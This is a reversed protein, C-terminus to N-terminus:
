GMDDLIDRLKGSYSPDTAWVGNGLQSIRTVWYGRTKQVARADYYRDHPKGITERGTYAAMHNVHMRVGAYATAPREFDRPSDGVDGGKKIGAMNWPKSDGGYRGYGTELMAQAVLFDPAIGVKPGLKYYHPISQLIYKTSGKSRAHRMADAQSRLPRGLISDPNRTPATRAAKKVVKVGDAIVRGKGRGARSVIVNSRNGAAMRFTGLRVWRGGKTRQNVRVWKTGSTTVVGFPTSTNNERHAPWRAFVSYNGASPIRAKFRAPSGKGPPAFAFDKGLRQGDFSASQKWIDPAFFSNASANDVTTSYAASEAPRAAGFALLGALAAALLAVTFAAMGRRPDGTRTRDMIKGLGGFRRSAEENSM